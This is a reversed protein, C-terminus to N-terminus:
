ATIEVLNGDPDRVIAEYFGDGTRRPHAALLGKPELRAALADVAAASGLGIAVHALGAREHADPAPRADPAPPAIWPASM